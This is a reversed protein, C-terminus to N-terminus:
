QRSGAVAECGELAKLARRLEPGRRAHAIAVIRVRLTPETSTSPEISLREGAVHFVYRANPEDAFSVVGKARAVIPSMARVADLFRTRDLPNDGVYSASTFAAHAADHPGAPADDLRQTFRPDFIVDALLAEGDNSEVVPVNPITEALWARVEALRHADILDVKSLVVVDAAAMQRQVLGGVYKDRARARITEADAVVITERVTLAPHCDAVRAVAHPDAVGSTEIVIREPPVEREILRRLAVVLDGGITCCTCGNTLEITEQGSSAILEADVNVNGFDNVLVAFRVGSASRLLANVLTTKGAGLYGGIVAVPIPEM